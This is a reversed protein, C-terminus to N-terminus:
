PDFPDGVKFNETEAVLESMFNDYVKSAVFVRTRATCVQGSNGFGAPVAAAAAQEIDADAFIINPSKGGLELSVKKITDASMKLIRAGTATEGTFAIKDIQPHASLYDGIEAGPGPLV